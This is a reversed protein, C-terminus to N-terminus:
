GEKVLLEKVMCKKIFGDNNYEANLFTGFYPDTFKNIVKLNRLDSYSYVPSEGSESAGM